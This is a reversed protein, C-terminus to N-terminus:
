NGAGVDPETKIEGLIKSTNSSKSTPRAVASRLCESGVGFELSSSLSEFNAAAYRRAAGTSSAEQCIAPVAHRPASAPHNRSEFSPVAGQSKTAPESRPLMAPNAMKM